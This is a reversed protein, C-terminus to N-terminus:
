KRLIFSASIECLIMMTYEVKTCYVVINLNCCTDLFSLLEPFSLRFRSESNSLASSEMSLSHVFSENIKNNQIFSEFEHVSELKLLCSILLFLLLNLKLGM